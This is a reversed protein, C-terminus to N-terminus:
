TSKAFAVQQCYAGNLVKDLKSDEGFQLLRLLFEKAKKNHNCNAMIDSIYTLTPPKKVYLFSLLLM